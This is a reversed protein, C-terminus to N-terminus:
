ADNLIATIENMSVNKKDVNGLCVKLAELQQLIKDRELGGLGVKNVFDQSNEM